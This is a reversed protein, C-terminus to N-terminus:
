WGRYEVMGTLDLRTGECPVLLEKLVPKWWEEHAHGLKMAFAYEAWEPFFGSREWDVIGTVRAGEVMINRPTLDGHTLVFRDLTGNAKAKERAKDLFRRMKWM